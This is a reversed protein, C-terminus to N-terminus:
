AAHPAGVAHTIARHAHAALHRRDSNHSAIPPLVEIQALLGDASVIARLAQWLTIADVYAPAESRRGTSDTYRLALPTVPAGADIAAQFLAGHFPLVRDGRTTTGEPFVVVRRDTRLQEVLKARAHQVASRSGRELFITDTRTALWGILPWRRVEEKAVFTAPTVANIVYIDLFSIHNAVFLGAAATGSVQLEVGLCELLQRSWRQKLMLRRAPSIWPYVSAATALGSLLHLALRTLRM